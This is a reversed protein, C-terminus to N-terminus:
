NTDKDYVDATDSLDQGFPPLKRYGGGAEHFNFRTLGPFRTVGLMNKDSFNGSKAIKSAMALSGLM